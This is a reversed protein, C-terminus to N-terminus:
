EASGREQWARWRTVLALMVLAPALVVLVVAMAAGMAVWSAARERGDREEDSVDCPHPPAPSSNTRAGRSSADTRSGSM